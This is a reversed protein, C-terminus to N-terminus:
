IYQSLILEVATYGSPGGSKMAADAESIALVASTLHQLTFKKINNIYRGLRFSNMNDKIKSIDDKSKGDRVLLMIDLLMAYESYMDSFIRIPDVRRLKMEALATFAREKNREGLANVFAFTEYELVAPCVEAVDEALVERRGHALVFASLKDIEGILVNMSRGVRDIIANAASLSIKIGEASFHREIWSLLQPRTSYEFNLFFFSDFREPIKKSKKKKKYDFDVTGPIASIALVTYPYLDHVLALEELASLAAEDMKSFDAHRWEVLKYESMMPPAEIADFLAAFDIEGGDFVTHNFAAFGDDEGVVAKALVGTYHRILFEEDGAFIYRGEFNGSKVKSTFSNLDLIAM